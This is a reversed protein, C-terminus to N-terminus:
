YWSLGRGNETKFDILPFKEKLSMCPHSSTTCRSIDISKLTSILSIILNELGENTHSADMGRENLMIVLDRYSVSFQCYWRVAWLIIEKSFHKWKFLTTPSQSM